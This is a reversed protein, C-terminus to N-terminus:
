RVTFCPVARKQTVYGPASAIAYGPCVRGRKVQQWGTLIVLDVDTEAPMPMTYTLRRGDATKKDTKKVSGEPFPSGDFDSRLLKGGTLSVQLRFGKLTRTSTNGIHIVTRAYCGRCRLAGIPVRGKAGSVDLSIAQKLSRDGESSFATGAATLAGGVALVSASVAAM